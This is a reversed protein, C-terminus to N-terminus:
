TRADRRGAARDFAWVHKLWTPIEDAAPFKAKTNNWRYLVQYRESAGLEPLGEAAHTDEAVSAEEGQQALDAESTQVKQLDGKDKEIFRM